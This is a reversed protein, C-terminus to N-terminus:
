GTTSTMPLKTNKGPNPNPIANGEQFIVEKKDM